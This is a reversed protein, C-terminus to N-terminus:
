RGIPDQRDAKAIVVVENQRYFRYLQNPDPRALVKFVECSYVVGEITVTENAEDQTIKLM